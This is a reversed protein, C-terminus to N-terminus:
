KGQHPVQTLLKHDFFSVAQALTQDSFFNHGGNKVIILRADIHARQLAALLQQSQALPVIQDRDGHMILFPPPNNTAISAIYTIPSAKIALMQKEKVPGGLFKRIPSNPASEDLPAGKPQQKAISILDTLGSWDCVAQVKSSENLFAGRDFDKVNNSTGLLAVLHGGASMGFAGFRDADLNYQAAHARLWRIAAKCDEIQAPFPAQDSLRYNLSAVAYKHRVLFLAPTDTKDGYRWAGGHIWVILPLRKDKETQTPVYLDLQQSHLKSGPVYTLDAFKQFDMNKGDAGMVFVAAILAFLATTLRSLASRVEM